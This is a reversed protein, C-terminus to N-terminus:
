PTSSIPWTEDRILHCLLVQEVDTFQTQEVRVPARVAVTAVVQREDADNGKDAMARGDPGKTGGVSM